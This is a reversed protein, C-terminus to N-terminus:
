CCSFLSSILLTLFISETYSLPRFTNLIKNPESNLRFILSPIIKNFSFQVIYSRILFLIIIIAFLLLSSASNVKGGGSQGFPLIMDRLTYAISM